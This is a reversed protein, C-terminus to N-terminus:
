ERKIIFTSLHQKLFANSNITTEAENIINELVNYTIFNLGYESRKRM